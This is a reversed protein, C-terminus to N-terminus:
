DCIRGDHVEWCSSVTYGRGDDIVIKGLEYAVWITERHDRRCRVECAKSQDIAILVQRTVCSMRRPNNAELGGIYELPLYAVKYKVRSSNRRICTDVRDM